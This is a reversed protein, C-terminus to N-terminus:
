RADFAIQGKKIVMKINLDDDMLVVDAYKGADLSGYDQDIGLRRAPNLTAARIASEVPIGFQKVCRQICASLPIVPGALAGDEMRAVDGVVNYALGGLEYRGEGLGTARMGDSILIVHDDGFLKFVARMMTEGVFNGDPILEVTAGGDFAAGVIGTDRHGFPTMGNFLHTVHNAGHRIAESAVAYNAESHAISLTVEAKCENILAMAGPMEPAITVVCIRNGSRANLRRVLAADPMRIHASNQAGRKAESIFPGEIYIGLMEASKPEDEYGNAVACVQELLAEDVTMTAPVFGTVGQRILYDAMGAIAAKTGDCLDFGDSGHIHMDILGPVALLGGCDIRKDAAHVVIRENEVCVEGPRFAGHTFVIANELVM